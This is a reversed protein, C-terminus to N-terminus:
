DAADAGGTLNVWVARATLVPGWPVAWPGLLLSALAYPWGLGLRHWRSRTRYVGSQRRLTVWVVSVCLEFRVFREGVHAALGALGSM